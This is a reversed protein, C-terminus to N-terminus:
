ARIAARVAPRYRFVFVLGRAVLFVGLAWWVGNLSQRLPSWWRLSVAAACGVATSMAMTGFALLGSFVGDSTFVVAGVTLILGAIWAASLALAVVGTDDTLLGFGPRAVWVLLSAPEPIVENGNGGYKGSPSSGNPLNIHAAARFSGAGDNNFANFANATLGTAFLNYVSTQGNYFTGNPGNVAYSFLIDFGSLLSNLQHGNPDFETDSAEVGSVYTIALSAFSPAINFLIDKVKVAGPHAKTVRRKTKPDIYHAVTPRYLSGM